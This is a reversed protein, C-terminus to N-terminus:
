EQSIEAQDTQNSHNGLQISAQAPIRSVRQFAELIQNVGALILQLQIEQM